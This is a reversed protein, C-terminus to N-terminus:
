HPPKEPGLPTSNPTAQLSVQYYNKQSLWDCVVERLRAIEKLRGKWRIDAITLDILELARELSKDRNPAENKEQWYRARAIESAVHGLQQTLSLKSWKEVHRYALVLAKGLSLLSELLFCLIGKQLLALESTM